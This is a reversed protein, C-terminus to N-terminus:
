RAPRATFGFAGPLLDSKNGEHDGASLSGRTTTDMHRLVEDTLSNEGSRRQKAQAESERQGHVNGGIDRGYWTLIVAKHNRYKAFKSPTSEGYLDLRAIYSDLSGNLRTRLDALDDPTLRVHKYEGLQLVPSAEKQIQESDARYRNQETDSEGFGEHFDEGFAKVFKDGHDKDAAWVDLFAKVCQFAITKLPCDPLENFASRWGIVVNPSEPSNHKLAQPVFVIRRKWDAHAMGKASVEGFAKRFGSLPWDLAEALSAEGASFACPLATTHPGTILYIWLSQGNPKPKSLSCFKDDGWM